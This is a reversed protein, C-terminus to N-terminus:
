GWDGGVRSRCLSTVIWHRSLNSQSVVVVILFRGTRITSFWKSFLLAKEDHDSSRILDPDALTQALQEEYDPLTGPHRVIIHQEREDTLEVEVELYSCFFSRTM